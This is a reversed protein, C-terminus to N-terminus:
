GPSLGSSRKAQTSSRRRFSLNEYKPFYSPSYSEQPRKSGTNPSTAMQYTPSPHHLPLLNIDWDESQEEAFCDNVCRTRDLMAHTLPEGRHSAIHELFADTGQIVASAPFQFACFQCQYTYSEKTAKSQPVHSKALFTWRFRVGRANEEWVRSRSVRGAFACHSCQLFEVRSQMYRIDFSVKMADSDMRGQLKVAGKCFGLYNNEATPLRLLSSGATSTTASRLSEAASVSYDFSNQVSPDVSKTSWVAPPQEVPSPTHQISSMSGRVTQANQEELSAEDEDVWPNDLLAWDHADAGGHEPVSTMGM